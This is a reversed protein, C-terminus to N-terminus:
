AEPADRPEAQAAEAEALRASPPTPGRRRWNKTTARAVVREKYGAIWAEADAETAFSTVVTPSTDPITVEVGYAAGRELIRFTAEAADDINAM